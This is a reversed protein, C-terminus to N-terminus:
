GAESCGLRAKMLNVHIDLILSTYLTMKHSGTTRVRGSAILEHTEKEKKYSYPTRKVARQPAPAGSMILLYDFPIETLVHNSWIM